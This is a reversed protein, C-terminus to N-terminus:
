GGGKLVFTVLVFKLMHPNFLQLKVITSLKFTTPKAFLLTLDNSLTMAMLILHLSIAYILFDILLILRRTELLFSYNCMANYLHRRKKAPIVLCKSKDPNFYILIM